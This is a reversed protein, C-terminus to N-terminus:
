DFVVMGAEDLKSLADNMAEESDLSSVSGIPVVPGSTSALGLGQVTPAPAPGAAPAPSAAAPAAATTSVGAIDGLAVQEEISLVRYADLLHVFKGGNQVLGRLFEPPVITGFSPPALIESAEPEIVRNVVDAVFGAAICEGAGGLAVVVLATRKTPELPSLGLREALGIVPLVQGRLNTVGRIWPPSCPVATLAGLSVIERVAALPVAYEEGTVSFVLYQTSM